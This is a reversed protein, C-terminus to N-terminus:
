TFTEEIEQQEGLAEKARKEQEEHYKKEMREFWEQDDLSVGQMQSEFAKCVNEDEDFRITLYEILIEEESYRDWIPDLFLLNRSKCIQWKAYNIIDADDRGAEEPPLKSRCYAIYKLGFFPDKILPNLPKAKEKSTV